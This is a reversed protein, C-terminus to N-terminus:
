PHTARLSPIRQRAHSESPQTPTLGQEDEGRGQGSTRDALFRRRGALRFLRGSSDTLELGFGVLEGGCRARQEGLQSPELEGALDLALFDPLRVELEGHQRLRLLGHLLAQGLDRGFPRGRRRQDRFAQDLDVFPSAAAVEAKKQLSITEPLQSSQAAAHRRDRLEIPHAEIRVTANQAGLM